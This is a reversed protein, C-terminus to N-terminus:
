FTAVFIGDAHWTITFTGATVTKNSGFNIACLVPDGALTDDYLVAGRATFTAGTWECTSAGADYFKLVGAAVTVAPNTLTKPGAPTAGTYDVRGVTGYPSTASAAIVENANKDQSAVSDSYLHVGITDTDLNYAAGNVLMQGLHYGNVYSATMTM